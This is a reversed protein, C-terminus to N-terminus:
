KVTHDGNEAGVNYANALSHCFHQETSDPHGQIILVNKPM